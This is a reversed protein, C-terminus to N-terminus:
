VRRLFAKRDTGLLLRADVSYGLDSVIFEEKFEVELERLARYVQRQLQSPESTQQAHLCRAHRWEEVVGARSTSLHAHWAESSELVAQHLQSISEISWSPASPGELLAFAHDIILSVIVQEDAVAFAWVTNALAQPKFDDLGRRTIELALRAFLDADAINATAFAWVTNALEQPKFDALGRRTIELALRAFLDADAINATAFAWVTNALAQLDFDDLSRRQTIELGLRAFLDADAMNAKAFAWVMSALDQPTFDDLSRRRTIESALWAFLDADAMNAKAFAWLTNALGQPTFDDMGKRMGQALAAFVRKDSVGMKALAWVTLAFEKADYRKFASPDRLVPLLERKVMPLINLDLNHSLSLKALSHLVKAQYQPLLSVFRKADLCTVQHRLLNQHRPNPLSFRSDVSSAKTVATLLRVYQSGSLPGQQAQRTTDDLV